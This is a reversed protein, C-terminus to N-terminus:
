TRGGCVPCFKHKALLPSGCESCFGGSKARKFFSTKKQNMQNHTPVQTKQNDGHPLIPKQPRHQANHHTQHHQGLHQQHTQNVAGSNPMQNRNQFNQNNMAERRKQPNNRFDDIDIEVDRVGRKARRHGMEDLLDQKSRTPFKIKIFGYVIMGLGVVSMLQFFPASPIPKIFGLYLSFGGVFLGVGVWVPGPIEAMKYTFEQDGSKIFM